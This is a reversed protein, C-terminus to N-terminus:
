QDTASGVAIIVGIVILLMLMFVLGDRDIDAMATRLRELLHPQRARVVAVAAQSHVQVTRVDSLIAENPLRLDPLVRVGFATRIRQRVRASVYTLCLPCRSYLRLVRM